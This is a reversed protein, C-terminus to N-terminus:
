PTASRWWAPLAVAAGLVIEPLSYALSAVNGLASPEM